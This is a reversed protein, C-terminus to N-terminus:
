RGQIDTRMVLSRLRPQDDECASAEQWNRDEHKQDPLCGAEAYRQYREWFAHWGTLERCSCIRGATRGQELLVRGHTKGGTEPCPYGNGAMTWIKNWENWFRQWQETVTLTTRYESLDQDSGYWGHCVCRWVAYFWLCYSNPLGSGSYKGAGCYLGNRCTYEGPCFYRGEGAGRDSLIWSALGSGDWFVGWFNRRRKDPEQLCFAAGSVSVETGNIDRRRRDQILKVASSTGIRDDRKWFAEMDEVSRVGGAAKIKCKQWHARQLRSIRWFQVGTGFGHLDQYLGRRDDCCSM